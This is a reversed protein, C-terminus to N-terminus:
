SIILRDKSAKQRSIFKGGNIDLPSDESYRQFGLSIFASNGVSETGM